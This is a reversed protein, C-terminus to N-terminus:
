ITDKINEANARNKLGYYFAKHLWACASFYISFMVCTFGLIQVPKIVYFAFSRAVINYLLCTVSGEVTCECTGNSENM